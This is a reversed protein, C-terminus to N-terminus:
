RHDVYVGDATFIQQSQKSLKRLCANSATLGGVASLLSKRLLQLHAFRQQTLQLSRTWDTIRIGPLDLRSAFLRRSPQANLPIVQCLSGCRTFLRKNGSCSGSIARSITRPPDRQPLSQRRESNFSYADCSVASRSLRRWLLASALESRLAKVLGSSFLSM